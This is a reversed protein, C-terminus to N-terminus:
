EADDGGKWAQAQKSLPEQPLVVAFQSVFSNREPLLENDELDTTTNGLWWEGGSSWM